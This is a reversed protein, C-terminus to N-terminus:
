TANSSRFKVPSVREWDKFVRSFYYPDSFGLKESIEKIELDTFLLLEKARDIKLRIFYQNPSIGAQQKFKRRFNDYSMFLSDAIAHFDLDSEEIKEEMKLRIKYIPDSIHKVTRKGDNLFLGNLDEDSLDKIREVEKLESGTLLYLRDVLVRIDESNVPVLIVGRGQSKLRHILGAFAEYQRISMGRTVSDFAYYECDKVLARAIDVLPRSAPNISEVPMDLPVVVELQKLTELAKRKMLRRNLFGLRSYKSMSGMFINDLVSLKEALAARERAVGVQSLRKRAPIAGAGFFIEGSDERGAGSILDLLLNLRDRSESIIGCTQDSKFELNIRELLPYGDISKSLNEIRFLKRSNV